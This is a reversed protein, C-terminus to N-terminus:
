QSTPLDNVSAPASPVPVPPVSSDISNPMPPNPQSAPEPAQSTMERQSPPTASSLAENSNYLNAIEENLVDRFHPAKKEMFTMLEQPSPNLELLANYEQINEEPMEQLVRDLAVTVATSTISFIVQDQQEPELQELKFTKIINQRLDSLM